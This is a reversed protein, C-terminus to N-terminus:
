VRRLLRSVVRDGLPTYRKLAAYGAVLWRDAHILARRAPGDAPRPVYRTPRLPLPRGADRFYYVALSRRTRGPPCAVGAPVGHWAEPGVRFVLCRNMVPVVSRICRRVDRDWLETSGRWREDWGDNLFVLLNLERRWSRRVTHSLFDTHVNLFGGPRTEHLGGGDLDPDALLGPVGSLAELAGVFAPSQLDGIVQRAAPGMAGRDACGRKRENVHHYFTWEGGTTDFEAALARAVEPRLFDDLVVHPYPAAALFEARRATAAAAFRGLDLSALAASV